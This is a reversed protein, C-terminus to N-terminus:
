TSSLDLPIPSGNNGHNAFQLFYNGISQNNIGSIKYSNDFTAQNNVLLGFTYNKVKSEPKADIVFVAGFHSFDFTTKKDTTNTNLFNATNKRSNINAGFSVNNYNFVASGAANDQIASIDGGIAGFAGGMANYRASGNLQNSGFRIAESPDLEQAWLQPALFLVGAFIIYKKM